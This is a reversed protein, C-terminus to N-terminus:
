KGICFRSFIAGLWEEVETRGTIRGIADAARRIHEAKIELTDQSCSISENLHRISEQLIERQRHTTVAAIEKVQFRELVLRQLEKVFNELGEKTRTSLVTCPVRDANNRILGSEENTLDSKNRVVIDPISEPDYRESGSVDPSAVWVKIHAQGLEIKSRRIGETEIEDSASSRLGATDTLIVPLGSMDLLVEIVDRTTGPIPSVIAADRRALANLLSSKGTNPYGALVVRVGDRIAEASASQAVANQLELLLGVISSDIRQGAQEAVGPEDSFDLVAELDARISLLRERWSDFQSSAQGLMHTIALHRQAETRAALLDGLGEAQVLDLKGNLVARKTFEGPEALRVGTYSSLVKFVALHVARSGHIHLEACDEGTFSRKGPFYIVLAEDLVSGTQPDVLRRLAAKRPPPLGGTVDKIIRPADPGSIRVVSLASVGNGSALAYITDTQNMVSGFRLPLAL